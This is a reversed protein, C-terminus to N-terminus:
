VENVPQRQLFDRAKRPGFLLLYFDYFYHQDNAMTLQRHLRFFRGKMGQYRRREIMKSFRVRKSILPNAPPEEILRDPGSKYFCIPDDAAYIEIWQINAHGLVLKLDDRVWGCQNMLGIQLLNSGIAIITLKKDKLVEPSQRLVQAIAATAYASGFSHTTLIIEDADCTEIERRLVSSFIAQRSLSIDNQGLAMVSTHSLLDLELPINWRQALIRFIALFFVAAVASLLLVSLGEVLKNIAWAAGLSMASITLIIMIPYIFFLGYRWNARFYRWPALTLFHSFYDPASVAIRRWFTSTVPRKLFSTWEMMVVRTTTSWEEGQTATQWYSVGESEELPGIEQRVAWLKQFRTCERVFRQYHHGAAVLEYGPFHLVLRKHVQDTNM